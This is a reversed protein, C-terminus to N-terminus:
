IWWEHIACTYTVKVRLYLIPETVTYKASQSHSTSLIKGEPGIYEIKFGEEADRIYKGRLVPSKL